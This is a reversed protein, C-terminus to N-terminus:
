CVCDTSHDVGSLLFLIYLSGCWEVFVIQVTM